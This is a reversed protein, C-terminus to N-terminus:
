VKALRLIYNVSFEHAGKEDEGLYYPAAVAEISWAMYGQGGSVLPAISCHSLGHLATYVAWADADAQHYDAARTAVQLM